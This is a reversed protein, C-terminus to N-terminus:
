ASHGGITKNRERATSGEEYSIGKLLVNKGFKKKMKSVEKQLEIESESMNTDEDEFLSPQKPLRAYEDKNILNNFGITIRRIYLKRNVNKNYLALLREKIRSIQVTYDDFM